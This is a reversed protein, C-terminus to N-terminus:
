NMAAEIWENLRGTLEGLAESAFSPEDALTLALVAVVAIPFLVKQLSSVIWASAKASRTTLNDKLISLGIMLSVAAYTVMFITDSLTAQDTEVKPLALYLAIASLLATVQIGMTSDFRAHPLYVSFYTVLLIFGLPIIVRTYYDFALREAVWTANFKYFPVIRRESLSQGITPIIDQDAGVYSDVLRWGDIYLDGGQM